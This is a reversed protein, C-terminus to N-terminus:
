KTLRKIAKLADLKNGIAFSGTANESAAIEELKPLIIHQVISGIEDQYTESIRVLLQPVPYISRKGDIENLRAILSPLSVPGMAVLAENIPKGMIGSDLQYSVLFEVSRPDHLNSLEDLLEIENEGCTDVNEAVKQPDPLEAMIELARTSAKGGWEWINHAIYDLREWAAKVNPDTIGDPIQIQTPTYDLSSPQIPDTSVGSHFTGDEHFHGHEPHEEKPVEAPKQDEKSVETTNQEDKRKQLAELETELQRMAAQDKVLVFVTAGIILLVFLVGIGWYFKNNM